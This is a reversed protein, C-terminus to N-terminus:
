YGNRRSDLLLIKPDTVLARALAVRQQEEGSLTLLHRDLLHTIKLDKAIELLKEQSKM